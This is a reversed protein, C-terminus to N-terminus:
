KATYFQYNVYAAYLVLLLHIFIFLASLQDVDWIIYIWWIILFINILIIWFAQFYNQLRFFTVGWFIAVILNLYLTINLLNQRRTDPAAEIYSTYGIFIYLSFSAIWSYWHINTDPATDPVSANSSNFGYHLYILAIIVILVVILYTWFINSRLNVGWINVPKKSICCTQQQCCVPEPINTTVLTGSSINYENSM